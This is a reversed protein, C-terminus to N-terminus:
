YMYRIEELRAHHASPSCCCCILFKFLVIVGLSGMIMWLLYTVFSGGVPGVEIGGDYRDYTTNLGNGGGVTVTRNHRDINDAFIDDFGPWGNMDVHVRTPLEEAEQEVRDLDHHWHNRLEEARREAPRGFEERLEAARASSVEHGDEYTTTGTTCNPNDACSVGGFSLGGFSWPTNIIRGGARIGASVQTTSLALLATLTLTKSVWTTNEENHNKTGM